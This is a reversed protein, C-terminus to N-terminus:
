RSASAALQEALAEAFRELSGKTLPRDSIRLSQEPLKRGDAILTASLGSASRVRIEVSYAVGPARAAASREIAACLAEAGGSDAPLKEGGVVRCRAPDAAPSMACANGGSALALAFALAALRTRM